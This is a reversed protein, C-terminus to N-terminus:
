PGIEEEEDGPTAYTDPVQDMKCYDSLCDNDYLDKLM